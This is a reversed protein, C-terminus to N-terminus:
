LPRERLSPSLATLRWRTWACTAPSAPTTAVQAFLRPIVYQLHAGVTFCIHIRYRYGVIQTKDSLPSSNKRVFPSKNRHRVGFMGINSYCLIPTIRYGIDVIKRKDLDMDKETNMNMSMNPNLTKLCNFTQSFHLYVLIYM